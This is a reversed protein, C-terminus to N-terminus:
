SSNHASRLQLPLIVCLKGARLLQQRPRSAQAQMRAIKTLQKGTGTPPSTGPIPVPLTTAIAPLGLAQPPVPQMSAMAISGSGDVSPRASSHRALRRPSLPPSSTTSGGAPQQQQQLASAPLQAGAAAAAQIQAQQQLAQQELYQRAQLQQSSSTTFDPRQLSVGSMRGLLPASSASSSASDKRISSMHVLGLPSRQHLPQSQLGHAPELQEVHTQAPQQGSSAHLLGPAGVQQELQQVNQATLPAAGPLQEQQATTNTPHAHPASSGGAAAAAAPQRPQEQM